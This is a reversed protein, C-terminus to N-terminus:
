DSRPRPGPSLTGSQLMRIGVFAIPQSITGRGDSRQFSHGPVRFPRLAPPRVGREKGEGGGGLIHGPLTHAATWRQTLQLREHRRLQQVQLLCRQPGHDLRLRHVVACGSSQHLQGECGGRKCSGCGIWRRGPEGAPLASFRYQDLPLFGRADEYTLATGPVLVKRSSAEVERFISFSRLYLWMKDPEAAAVRDHMLLTTGALRGPGSFVYLLRTETPDGDFVGWLTRQNPQYAEAHLGGRRRTYTTRIDQRVVRAGRRFSRELAGMLGEAEESVPPPSGTPCGNAVAASPGVTGVLGIAIAALAQLLLPLRPARSILPTKTPDDLAAVAAGGAPLDV